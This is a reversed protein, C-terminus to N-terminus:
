VGSVESPAVAGAVMSFGRVASGATQSVLILSKKHKDKTKMSMRAKNRWKEIDSVENRVFAFHAGLICLGVM